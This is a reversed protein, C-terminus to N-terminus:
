RGAVALKQFLSDVVAEHIWEGVTQSPDSIIYRTSGYRIVNVTNAAHLSGITVISNYASLGRGCVAMDTVITVDSLPVTPLKLSERWITMGVDTTTDAFRYIELMGAAGGTAAPCSPPDTSTKGGSTGIALLAISLFFLPLPTPM